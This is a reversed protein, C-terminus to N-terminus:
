AEYGLRDMMPRLLPLVPEFHERYAHWRNVSRQNIGQTVQAYSPTSIFPKDRAHQAFSAMSSADAVELFKGLRSVNDDFQTVVSEYRWELVHPAFLAVHRSWQEFARVYGQALRPLSSCLVMFAPSRFSQMYCSLLVDCPHRLCLIIRADPFLRVIMPLCLMNLPNKDVLTREGRNPLVGAAMGLYLARLQDADAQALNALAEPYTEGVADMRETLEHIFAREDMSQFDPHADIMQELLTTGSRPFGVVFVPSLARTPAALTRWTAYAAPSVSRGTMELPQSDAALLEPVVDRAIALQAAHAAQAALWAVEYQGQKDSASALGFNAAADNEHDVGLERMQRFLAAARDPAKDRLALSAHVSWVEARAHLADPPLDDLAALPLRALERQARDVQNSREYLAIRRALLRLKLSPSEPTAPSADLQKKARALADLAGAFDGQTALMAALTLAQASAQPPWDAAGALMAEEGLSDGCVHCAYAAQLRADVFAPACEVAHMLAQRAPLWRRQEVHLLGLNYSVEADAPALTQAALFAREAADADGRQRSAVGLNNWHASVTPWRRALREFTAVADDLRGTAQQASGLLVGALESEGDDHVALAIVREMDGANHADTMRSALETSSLSMRVRHINTLDNHLLAALTM